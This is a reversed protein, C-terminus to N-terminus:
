WQHITSYLSHFSVTAAYNLYDGLMNRSHNPFVRTIQKFVAM